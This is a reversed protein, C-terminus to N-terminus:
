LGMPYENEHQDNFYPTLHTNVFEELLMCKDLSDCKVLAFGSPVPFATRDLLDSILGCQEADLNANQLVNIADETSIKHSFDMGRVNSELNDVATVIELLMGRDAVYDEMIIKLMSRHLSIHARVEQAETMKEAMM